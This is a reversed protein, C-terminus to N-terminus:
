KPLTSFGSYHNNNGDFSPCTTVDVEPCEPAASVILVIVVAFM